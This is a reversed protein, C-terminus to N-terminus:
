LLKLLGGVFDAGTGRVFGFISFAFEGSASIVTRNGTSLDVSFIADLASDVVYATTGASNLVMDRPNSFSAELQRVILEKTKITNGGSDVSRVQITNEGPALDITTFLEWTRTDLDINAETSGFYIKDNPTYSEPVRGSLGSISASVTNLKPVGWITFDTECANGENDRDTDKQDKNPVFRCNDNPNFVEDGDTDKWIYSSIDSCGLFLSSLLLVLFLFLTNKM